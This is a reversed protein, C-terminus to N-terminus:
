ERADAEAEGETVAFFVEELSGGAGRAARLEDLSGCAVSAGRYLIAVRDCLREAQDLLHTSFFVSRGDQTRQRILRHLTRSAMPDLGSTPEDLILLEPDHLLACIMGLKKRMGRSYNVAYEGLADELGLLAVLPRARERLAARRFGHMEGVFQVIEAGTLYDYFVPDDPLYGVRRTVQARDSFCDLGAVRAEGETPQLLGMLMRITTTKGAGNPGLFAFVEGRRVCLDLGRVATFDGFRRTLGRTELLTDTM